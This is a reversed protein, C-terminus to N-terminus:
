NLFEKDFIIKFDEKIKRIRRLQSIKQKRLNMKKKEEIKKEFKKIDDSKIEIKKVEKIENVNIVQNENDLKYKTFDIKQKECIPCIEIDYGGMM